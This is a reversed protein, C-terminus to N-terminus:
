ARSNLAAYTRTAVLAVIEVVGGLTVTPEVVPVVPPVTVAVTVFPGPVAPSQTPRYSAFPWGTCHIYRFPDCVIGAAPTVFAVTVNASGPGPM